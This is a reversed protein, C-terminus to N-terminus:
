QFSDGQITIVAIIPTSFIRMPVLAGGIGSSVFVHHKNDETSYLGNYCKNFAWALPQFPFIQGSHTHGCLHLFINNERLDQPKLQPIHSLLVTPLRPNMQKPFEKLRKKLNLEYDVGLFIIENTIFPELSLGIHNINTENIIKLMLSTGMIEEHNGTIFLIPMALDNFPTLWDLKVKETGDALDGTIVVVDPNILMIKQVVKMVLEKQYIAGLHMDSLHCIKKKFHYDPYTLTINRIQIIYNNILGYISFIVPIGFSFLWAYLPPFEYGISILLYFICFFFTNVGNGLIIGNLM